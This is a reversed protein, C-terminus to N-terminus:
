DDSRFDLELIESYKELKKRLERLGDADLNDCRIQLVDDDMTIKMYNSASSPEELIIGPPSGATRDIPLIPPQQIPKNPQPQVIVESMPIGTESGVIFVWDAFPTVHRVVAPEPLKFVGDVEWQILDGVRANGFVKENEPEDHNAHDENSPSGSDGAEERELYEMTRFYSKMIPLIARDQFSERILWNKLASESPTSEFHDNIMGFIKPSNGSRWLADKLGDDGDPAFIDLGLPTIRVQGKGASEVLGYQALTGLMKDAAGSMSTYGVHGAASERHIVNTRDADFWQRARALAKELPIHPYSPSQSAM